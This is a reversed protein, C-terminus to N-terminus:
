WGYIKIGEALVENLLETNKSLQGVDLVDVKKRLARSLDEVLAFFQLGFEALSIVLDIDSDERATGKAYSGFLYCYHVHYNAFVEACKARSEDIKLIGHTEDVYNFAEMNIVFYDYKATDKKSKDNEYSQYSRLSVKLYDAAQKQTMDAKQRLGKLSFSM